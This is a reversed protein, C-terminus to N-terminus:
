KKKMAVAKQKDASSGATIAKIMGRALSKLSCSEEIIKKQKELWRDVYNQDAGEDPIAQFDTRVSPLVFYFGKCGNKRDKAKSRM